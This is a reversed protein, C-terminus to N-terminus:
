SHNHGAHADDESGGHKNSCASCETNNRKADVCGKCKTKKGDVFGKACKDCWVTKGAKGEYCSKCKTAKGDVFGKACKDCWVTEGALGKACSACGAKKPAHADEQETRNGCGIALASIIALM